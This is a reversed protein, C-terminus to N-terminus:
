NKLVLGLSQSSLIDGFHNTKHSTPCLVTVRDVHLLLPPSLQPQSLSLAHWDTLGFNETASKKSRYIKVMAMNGCLKNEMESKKCKGTLVVNNM